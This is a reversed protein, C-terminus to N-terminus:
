VIGSLCCLRTFVLLQHNALIKESHAIVASLCVISFHVSCCLVNLPVPDRQIHCLFIRNFPPKINPPVDNHDFIHSLKDRMLTYDHNLIHCAHHGLMKFPPWDSEDGQTAWSTTDPAQYVFTSYGEVLAGMPFANGLLGSQYSNM